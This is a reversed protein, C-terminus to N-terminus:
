HKNVNKLCESDFFLCFFNSFWISKFFNIFLILIIIL